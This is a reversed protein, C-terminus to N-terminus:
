PSHKVKASFPSLREIVRCLRSGFRVFCTEKEPRMFAAEAGQDEDGHAPHPPPVRVSDWSGLMTQMVMLTVADPDTWSAGLVAIALHCKELDDDRFRM